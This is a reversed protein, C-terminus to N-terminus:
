NKEEKKVKLKIKILKRLYKEASYFVLGIIGVNFLINLILGM